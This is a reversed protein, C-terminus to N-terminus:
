GVDERERFKTAAKYIMELAEEETMWGAEPWVGWEEGYEWWGGVAWPAEDKKVVELSWHAGRARFYFPWGDIDGAAQVPCNGGLEWVDIGHM